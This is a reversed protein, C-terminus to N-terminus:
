VVRGLEGAHSWMGPYANMVFLTPDGWAADFEKTVRAELMEQPSRGQRCQEYLRERVVELMDYQAQLHDRGVVPGAGPVIRTNPGAVELLAQCAKCLEGIWGGTAYDLIPYSGVSVLDGVALIDADKLHVYVDGDTHARPLWRYDVERGGVSLAGGGYYFTDTPWADEPLPSYHRDQWPVDFDGQLWLRTNEHAYIKAGAKKVAANGGTHEYHWHTNFAVAPKAGRFRRAVSRLLAEGEDATGTDVLLAGDGTAAALVNGGTGTFVVADGDLETMALEPSAPACGWAAAGAGGLALGQLLWRRDVGSPGPQSRSKM